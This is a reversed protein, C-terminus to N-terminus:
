CVRSDPLPSTTLIGKSMYVIHQTLIDSIEAILFYESAHGIKRIRCPEGMQVLPSSFHLQHQLGNSCNQEKAVHCLVTLSSIQVQCKRTEQKLERRRRKGGGGRARENYGERREKDM